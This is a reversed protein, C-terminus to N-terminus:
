RQRERDKWNGEIAEASNLVSNFTLTTVHVRCAPDRFIVMEGHLLVPKGEGACSCVPPPSWLTNTNEM